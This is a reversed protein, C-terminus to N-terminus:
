DTPGIGLFTSICWLDFGCGAVFVLVWVLQWAGGASRVAAEQQLQSSSVSWLEASYIGLPVALM